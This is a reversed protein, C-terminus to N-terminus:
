YPKCSHQDQGAGRPPDFVLQHSATIDANHDLKSIPVAAFSKSEILAQFHEWV